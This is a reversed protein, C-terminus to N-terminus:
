RRPSRRSASRSLYFADDLAAELREMQEAGYRIGDLQLTIPRLVEGTREDYDADTQTIGSAYLNVGGNIAEGVAIMPPNTAMESAELMSLMMQQLMRADPLGYVVAAFLRIANGFMSGGFEWRPITAPFTRLAVEELIHQNEIDVYVSVWPM